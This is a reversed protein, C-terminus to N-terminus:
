LLMTATTSSRIGTGDVMFHSRDYLKQLCLAYHRDFENDATGATMERLNGAGQQVFNDRRVQQEPFQTGPPHWLLQCWFVFCLANVNTDM